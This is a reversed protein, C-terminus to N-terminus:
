ARNKSIDFFYNLFSICAVMLLLDVSIYALTDELISRLLLYITLISYFQIVVSHMTNNKPKRIVNVVKLFINLYFIVFVFFSIIGANFLVFIHSNSALKQFIKLIQQDYFFGYGFVKFDLFYANILIEWGCIRGGSFKNIKTNFSTCVADSSIYDVIVDPIKKFFDNNLNEYSRYANSENTNENIKVNKKYVFIGLGEKSSLIRNIEVFSDPHESIYKTFTFNMLFPFTIIIVISLIKYINKYGGNNLFIFFCCLIFILINLKSQFFINIFALILIITLIMFTNKNFKNNLLFNYFCTLLLLIVFIIRSSGNSNQPIHFTMTNFLVFDTVNDGRASSNSSVIKIILEPLIFIISFTVLIFILSYHFFNFIIKKNLKKSSIFNILLIVTLYSICYHLSFYFSQYENLYSGVFGFIPYISLYLYKSTDRYIILFITLISFTYFILNSRLFSFTPFYYNKLDFTENMHSGLGFWLLIWFAFTLCENKNSKGFLFIKKIYFSNYTNSM